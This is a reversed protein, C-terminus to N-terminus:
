TSVLLLSKLDSSVLEFGEITKATAIKDRFHDYGPTQLSFLYLSVIFLSPPSPHTHICQECM